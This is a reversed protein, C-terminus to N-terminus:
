RCSTKHVISETVVITANQEKPLPKTENKENTYVYIVISLLVILLIGKKM